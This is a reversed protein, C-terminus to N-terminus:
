CSLFKTKNRHGKNERIIVSALIRQEYTGICCVVLHNFEWHHYLAGCRAMISHRELLSHTTGLKPLCLIQNWSPVIVDMCRLIKRKQHSKENEIHPEIPM